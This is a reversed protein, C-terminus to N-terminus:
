SRQDSLPVGNGRAAFPVRDADEPIGAGSSGPDQLEAAVVERDVDGDGSLMADDSWSQGASLGGNVRGVALRDARKGVLIVLSEGQQVCQIFAAYVPWDQIVQNAVEREAGTGSPRFADELFSGCRAISSSTIESHAPMTLSARPGGPAHRLDFSAQAVGPEGPASRRGMRRPSIAASIVANLSRLQDDFERRLSCTTVWGNKVNSGCM